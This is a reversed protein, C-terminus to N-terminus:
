RNWHRAHQMVTEIISDMQDLTLEIGNEDKVVDFLYDDIENKAQKQADEDDWFQVKWHNSVIDQIALAANAVLTEREADDMQVEQFIPLINGYVVTAQDNGKISEPIGEREKRVFKDRLESIQELYQQDTIRRSRYEDIAEQILKSFKEYFTRDEDFRETITRKMANAIADARHSVSKTEYVGMSEKVHAFNENDFINVPENLQQVDNAKLHRDLLKKIKPHYDRFDVSEAYRQKVSKKLKQFRLLDKKYMSIDEPKVEAYFRETSMCVALCKSYESLRAYFDERIDDESLYVEFEEEDLKNRVSKFLDWLDSHTQPLRSIETDVSNLTGELDEPDFGELATYMNLAKDLEGLVGAYDLIFGFDKHEYVRNVRAIAQLLTHERLKACLYLVSNRPADFGTLLKSVVILIEPEDSDKFQSILQKNYEEESGYRKMMREWFRIVEDKPGEGVEENGERTDPGSIIVASSVVGLEKLCEHYKLAVVKRPAVLQAKFGTGQFNNRFHESIDFARMFVVPDAQNLIEARSYKSKM